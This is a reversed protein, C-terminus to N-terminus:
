TRCGPSQPPPTFIITAGQSKTGPLNERGRMGMRCTFAGKGALENERFETEGLGPGSQTQHGLSNQGMGWDKRDRDWPLGRHSSRGTEGQM